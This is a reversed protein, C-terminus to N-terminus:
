EEWPGFDCMHNFLKEHSKNNYKFVRILFSLPKLMYLSLYSSKVYKQSEEVEETESETLDTRVGVERSGSDDYKGLDAGNDDVVGYDAAEETDIVDMDISRQRGEIVEAPKIIVIHFIKIKPIQDPSFIILSVFREEDM